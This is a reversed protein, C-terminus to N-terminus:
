TTCEVVKEVVISAKPKLPHSPSDQDYSRGMRSGDDTDISGGEISGDPDTAIDFTAPAPARVPSLDLLDACALERLSAPILTIRSAAIRADLEENERAFREGTSETSMFSTPSPLMPSVGIPAPTAALQAHSMPALTAAM